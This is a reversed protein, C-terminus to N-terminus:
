KGMFRTLNFVLFGLGCCFGMLGLGGLVATMVWARKAFQKLQVQVANGLLSTVILPQKKDKAVLLTGERQQVTGVVTVRQGKRLEWLTCRTEGRLVALNLGVLIAASEAASPVVHIGEGLSLKDLGQPDIWISGTEDELRFPVGRLKDGAGKWGGEDSDYQEVKLRIFALATEDPGDIRNPIEQIIGELRVLNRGVQLTSISSPSAQNVFAENQSHKKGSLFTILLSFYYLSVM